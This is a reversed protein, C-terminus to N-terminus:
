KSDEDVVGSIAIITGKKTLLLGLLGHPPLQESSLSLQQKTNTNNYYLTGRQFDLPHEDGGQALVLEYPLCVMLGGQFTCAARKVILTGKGDATTIRLTQNVVRLTVDSYVQKAGNSQEVRVTGKADAASAFCFLLASFLLMIPLRRM